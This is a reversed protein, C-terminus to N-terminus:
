VGIADTVHGMHESQRSEVLVLRVVKALCDATRRAYAAQALCGILYNPREVAERTCHARLERLKFHVDPAGTCRFPVDSTAPTDAKLCEVISWGGMCEDSDPCLCGTYALLVPFAGSLPDDIRQCRVLCQAARVCQCAIRPAPRLGLFGHNIEDAPPSATLDTFTYPLVSEGCCDILEEGVLVQFVCHYTGYTPADEVRLVRRCVLEPGGYFRGVM